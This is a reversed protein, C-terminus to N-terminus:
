SVFLHGDWPIEPGRYITMHILSIILVFLSLLLFNIRVVNTSGPFIRPVGWRFAILGIVSMILYLFYTLDGLGYGYTLNSSAVLLINMCLLVLMIFNVINLVLVGMM